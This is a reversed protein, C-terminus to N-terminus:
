QCLSKIVTKVNTEFPPKIWNSEAKKEEYYKGKAFNLEYWDTSLIRYKSKSGCDIEVTYIVSRGKTIQKQPTKGFSVLYQAQVIENQFYVVSNVDLYSISQAKEDQLTIWDRVLEAKTTTSIALLAIIKLFSKMNLKVIRIVALLYKKNKL